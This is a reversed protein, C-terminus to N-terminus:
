DLLDKAEDNGARACPLTLRTATSRNLLASDRRRINTTEDVLRELELQKRTRQGLWSHTPPNRESIM